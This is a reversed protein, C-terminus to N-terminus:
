ENPRGKNPSDTCEMGVSEMFEWDITKPKFDKPKLTSLHKNIEDDDGSGGEVVVEDINELHGSVEEEIVSQSISSSSYHHNEIPLTSCMLYFLKNLEIRLEVQQDKHLRRDTTITDILDCFEQDMDEKSFGGNNLELYLQKLGQIREKPSTNELKASYRKITAIYNM